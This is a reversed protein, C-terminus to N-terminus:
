KDGPYIPQIQFEKVLGAMCIIHHGAPQTTASLPNHYQPVQLTLTLKDHDYTSIFIKPLVMLEGMCSFYVKSFYAMYFFPYTAM